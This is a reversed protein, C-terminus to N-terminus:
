SLKQEQAECEEQCSPCHCSSDIFSMGALSQTSSWSCACEPCVYFFTIKM